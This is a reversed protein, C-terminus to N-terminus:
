KKETEALRANEHILQLIALIHETENRGTFLLQCKVRFSKNLIGLSELYSENEINNCLQLVYLVKPLFYDFFVFHLDIKLM